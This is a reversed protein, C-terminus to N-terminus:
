YTDLPEALQPPLTIPELGYILRQGSAAVAAALDILSRILPSRHDLIALGSVAAVRFRQRDRVLLSARQCEPLENWASVIEFATRDLNLSAHVAANVRLVRRLWLVQDHLARLTRNRGFDDSLQGYAELLQTALSLPQGPPREQAGAHPEYGRPVPTVPAVQLVVDRQDSVA